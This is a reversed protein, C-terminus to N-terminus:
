YCTIAFGILHLKKLKRTKQKQNAAGSTEPNLGTMVVIRCDLLDVVGVVPLILNLTFITYLVLVFKDTQRLGIHCTSQDYRNM